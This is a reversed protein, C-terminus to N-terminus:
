CCAMNWTCSSATFHLLAANIAEIEDTSFPIRVAPVAHRLTAFTILVPWPAYGFLVLAATIVFAGYILGALEWNAAHRGVV